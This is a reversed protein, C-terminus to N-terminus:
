GVLTLGFRSLAVRLDPDEASLSESHSAHLEAPEFIAWNEIEDGLRSHYRIGAHAREGAADAREYRSIEQTLARPVRLRLAGADLDSVGHHALRAGLETRLQEISSSHGIDCFSERVSATGLCRVELWRRPVAGPPRTEFEADEPASEIAAAVIAPDPRFRALTELFPGLRQTSAYLVRYEGAPDDYRNGFTGDRDAYAWDPWAWADPRRGIRHLVSAAQTSRLGPSM